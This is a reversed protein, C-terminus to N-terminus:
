LRGGGMNVNHASVLKYSVFHRKQHYPFNINRASMQRWKVRTRSHFEIIKICRLRHLNDM